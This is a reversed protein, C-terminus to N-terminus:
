SISDQGNLVGGNTHLDMMRSHVVTAAEGKKQPRELDNLNRLSRQVTM